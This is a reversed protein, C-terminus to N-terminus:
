PLPPANKAVTGCPVAGYHVPAITIGINLLSSAEASRPLLIGKPILRFCIM